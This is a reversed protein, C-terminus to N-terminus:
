DSGFSEEDLFVPLQPGPRPQAGAATAEQEGKVELDLNKLGENLGDLSSSRSM